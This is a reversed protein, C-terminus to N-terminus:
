ESKRDSLRGFAQWVAPDVRITVVRVSGDGMLVHVGSDHVSSAPVLASRRDRAVTMPGSEPTTALNILSSIWDALTANSGADGRWQEDKPGDRDDGEPSSDAILYSTPGPVGDRGPGVRRETFVATFALGDGAELEALSMQRGLGFPGDSGEINPGTIARYSTPVPFTGEVAARDAPCLWGPVRGGSWGPAEAKGPNPRGAIGGLRGFDSTGAVRALAALPGSDPPPSSPDAPMTPIRDVMQDYLALAKGIGALNGRCSIERAAERRRPLMLMVCLVAVALIALVIAVEVPALGERRLSRDHLRM